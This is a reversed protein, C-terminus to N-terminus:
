CCDNCKGSPRSELQEMWNSVKDLTAFNLSYHMWQGDKRGNVLGCSILLSMHHSLTPQTIDMMELIKCACLEGNALLEVIQKRNPNSLAKFVECPDYDSV